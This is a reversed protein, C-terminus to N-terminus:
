RWGICIWGNGDPMINHQSWNYEQRSRSLKGLESNLYIMRQQARTKNGVCVFHSFKQCLKTPEWKKVQSTEDRYEKSKSDYGKNDRRMDKFNVRGLM